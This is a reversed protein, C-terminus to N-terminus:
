PIFGLILMKKVSSSVANFAVSTRLSRIKLKSLVPKVVTWRRGFTIDGLPALCTPWITLRSHPSNTVHTAITDAVPTASGGTRM